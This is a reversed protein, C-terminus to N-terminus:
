SGSSGSTAAPEGRALVAALRAAFRQRAREPVTPLTSAIRLLSPHDDASTIVRFLEAVTIGYPGCATREVADGPRVEGEELVRLYSGCRGNAEMRQVVDPRDLRLGLKFCPLRPMTAM